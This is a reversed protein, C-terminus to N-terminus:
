DQEGVKSTGGKFCKGLRREMMPACGCGAMRRTLDQPQQGTEGGPAHEGERPSPEQMMDAVMPGCGALVKQMMPEMNSPTKEGAGCTQSDSNQPEFRKPTM